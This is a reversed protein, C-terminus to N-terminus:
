PTVTTTTATTPPVAALESRRKVVEGDLDDGGLSVRLALTVLQTQAPDCVSVDGFTGPPVTTSAGPAVTPPVTLGTPTFENPKWYSVGTIEIDDVDYPRLQTSEPLLSEYGDELTAEGLYDAPTVCPTIWRVQRLDEAFSTLALNMRQERNTRGDNTAVTQLGLAFVLVVSSVIVVVVLAEILSVGAQTRARGVPRVSRGTGQVRLHTSDGWRGM